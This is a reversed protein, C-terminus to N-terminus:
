EATDALAEKAGDAEGKGAPGQRLKLTIVGDSVKVVRGRGLPPLNFSEGAKLSNGLAALTAAVVDRTTKKTGVLGTTVLAVFDKMKVMDAKAADTTAESSADSSTADSAKAASKATSSKSGAM